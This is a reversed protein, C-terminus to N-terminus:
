LGLFYRYKYRSKKFYPLIDLINEYILSMNIALQSISFTKQRMNTIQM